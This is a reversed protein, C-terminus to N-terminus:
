GWFDATAWVKGGKWYLGVGIRRFKKKLINARHEASHMWATFVQHVGWGYGVNEGWVSWNKLKAGVNSTHFLTNNNAMRRSHRKASNSVSASLRLRHDGHHRRATNILALMRTRDSASAAPAAAGAVVGYALTTVLV